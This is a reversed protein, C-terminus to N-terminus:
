YWEEVIIIGGTGNGGASSTASNSTVGGSGGANFGSGNNGASNGNSSAVSKGGGGFRSNAGAGSLTAVGSALWHGNGGTNGTVAAEANTSTGGAGGISWFGTAVSNSGSGGVGGSSTVTITGSGSLACSSNGGTSGTNNGAAGGNGGAGITITANAGAQAATGSLIAEPATGGGGGASGSGAGNQLVGGGGGAGGMVTVKFKILTSQWTHTNSATYITRLYNQVRTPLTQMSPLAGAGNSTLVQGSTGVSAISQEASTSTTGGCIVAYATTSSRGSGGDAVSVDTGGTEYITGANDQWTKSRTTATTIGSLVFQIKKTADAVDAYTSGSLLVPASFTATTTVAATITPSAFTGGTITKGTFTLSTPLSLTPNGSIGDGNTATIENTTGAITRVIATSTASQVLIGTGIPFNYAPISSLNAFVFGTGAPNVVLMQGSAPTGVFQATVGSVGPDLKLSRDVQEQIQQTIMTLRDLATEHSSAPFTDYETYDTEQTKTMNRTLIITTGSPADGAPDVLTINGGTSVNVGSVTYDTTKVLTTLAGTSTNRISVLIDDDDLIQFTYAFVATVGNCNYSVKNVESSVTM